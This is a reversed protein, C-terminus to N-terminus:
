LGESGFDLENDVSLGLVKQDRLFLLLEYFENDDKITIFDLPSQQVEMLYCTHDRPGVLLTAIYEKNRRKVTALHYFKTGDPVIINPHRIEQYVKNILTFETM